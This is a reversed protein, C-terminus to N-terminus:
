CRWVPPAWRSKIAPSFCDRIGVSQLALIRCLSIHASRNLGAFPERRTIWGQKLCSLEGTPNFHTTLFEAVTRQTGAITVNVTEGVLGSDTASTTVRPDAAVECVKSFLVAQSPRASRPSDEEATAVQAANETLVELNAALRFTFFHRGFLQCSHHERQLLATAVVNVLSVFVLGNLLIQLFRASPSLQSTAAMLDHLELICCAVPEHRDNNITLDCVRSSRM